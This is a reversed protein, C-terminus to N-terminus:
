RRSAPVRLFPRGDGTCRGRFHVDLEREFVHLASRVLRVAGDPHRCAGRGAIQRAWREIREGDPARGKRRALREVAGAVAGLGHVCPGCQGASEDALYRAVRATETIGCSTEPLALVTRAGLSAGATRLSQEGLELRLADAAKVWVGFYGGILFAQLPASPGGAWAVLQELGLGLPIEYVGPRAVAGDLTVLATGPEEPTGLARFWRPGFRAILALCALTEVNQVLTPLGRVGREFPRPPTFTPKAPGGNLANVLATEEGAVFRDPVPVVRVPIRDLRYRAREALAEEVAALERASGAGVAVLAEEAGVAASAVAVGDLVLNPVRRLLVRDKASAPEGEAGNAVVVSRGGAAVARLKRATPFGAGGRGTLGAAEVLEILGRPDARGFPPLEGHRDLHERLPVPRGDRRIGALLRPLATPEPAPRAPRSALAASSM